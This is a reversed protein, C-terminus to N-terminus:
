HLLLLCLPVMSLPHLGACSQHRIGCMTSPIHPFANSHAGHSERHPLGQGLTPSVAMLNGQNGFRDSGVVRGGQRQHPLYCLPQYQVPGQEPLGPNTHRLGRSGMQAIHLLPTLPHPQQCCLKLLGPGGCAISDSNYVPRSMSM